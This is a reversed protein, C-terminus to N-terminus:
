DDSAGKLAKIAAKEVARKAEAETAFSAIGWDEAATDMAHWRNDTGLYVWYDSRRGGFLLDFGSSEHAPVWRLKVTITLGDALNPDDAM